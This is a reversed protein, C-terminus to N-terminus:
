IHINNFYVTKQLCSHMHFMTRVDYTNICDRKQAIVYLSSLSTQQHRNELMGREESLSALHYHQIGKSQQLTTHSLTYDSYGYLLSVLLRPTFLCISHANSSISIGHIVVVCVVLCISYLLHKAQPKSWVIKTSPKQGVCLADLRHCEFKPKAHHHQCRHHFTQGAQQELHKKQSQESTAPTVM